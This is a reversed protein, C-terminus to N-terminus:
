KRHGILVLTKENLFSVFKEPEFNKISKINASLPEKCFKRGLSVGTEYYDLELAFLFGAKTLYESYVLTPKNNEIAIRIIFRYSDKNIIVPDPIFMIADNSVMAERLAKPVDKNNSVKKLSLELGVIKAAEKLDDIIYNNYGESHIVAVKNVNGVHERFKKFQNVFPARLEINHMNGLHINRQMNPTVLSYFVPEEFKESQILSTAPDGISYVVKSSNSNKKIESKMDDILKNGTRLKGDMDYLKILGSKGCGKYLGDIILQSQPTKKTNFIYIQIDNSKAEAIKIGLVLIILVMVVILKSNKALSAMLKYSGKYLFKNAKHM